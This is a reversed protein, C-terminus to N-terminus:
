GVIRCWPSVSEKIMLRGCAGAGASVPTKKIGGDRAFRGACRVPVVPCWGGFVVYGCRRCGRLPMDGQVAVVQVVGVVVNGDRWGAVRVGPGRCFVRGAFSGRLGM